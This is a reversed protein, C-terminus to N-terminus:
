RRESDQADLRDLQEVAIALSANLSVISARLESREERSMPMRDMNIWGERIADQIWRIHLMLTERETQSM